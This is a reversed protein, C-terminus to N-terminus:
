SSTRHVEWTGTASEHGEGGKIVFTGDMKDARLKGTFTTSLWCKCEPDQYPELSGTVVRDRMRIFSVLLPQVMPVDDMAAKPQEEDPRRQAIMWVRGEAIEEGAELEFRISGNRGTVVSSYAGSWTGELEDLGRETADVPIEASLPPPASSACGLFIALSMASFLWAIAIRSM